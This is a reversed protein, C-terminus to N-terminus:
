DLILIDEDIRARKPPRSEDAEDAEVAEAAEVAEVAEAAEAARFFRPFVYGGDREEYCVVPEARITGITKPVFQLARRESLSLAGVVTVM